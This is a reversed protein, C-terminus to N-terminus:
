ALQRAYHEDAELQSQPTSGVRQAQPRPPQPPPTPETVADPDSM